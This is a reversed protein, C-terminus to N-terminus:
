PRHEDDITNATLELEDLRRQITARSLRTARSIASLSFGKELLNTIRKIPVPKRSRGIPKGERRRREVAARSREARRESEMKALSSLISIVMERVPGPEDPIPDKLSVWTVGARDIRRLDLLTQLTGQRSFRDLAWFALIDFERKDCAALIDAHQRRQVKGSASEHVTYESVVDWGKEAAHQRLPGLQNEPNQNKDKTSVRAYLAARPRPDPM